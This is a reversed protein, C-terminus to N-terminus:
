RPGDAFVTEELLGTLEHMLAALGRPAEGDRTAVTRGAHTIRWAYGDAVAPRPLFYSACLSRFHAGTLLSRLHALRRDDLQLIVEEQPPRCITVAGSADVRMRAFRGAVGGSREVVLLPASGADTEGGTQDM